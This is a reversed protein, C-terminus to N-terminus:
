FELRLGVKTGGGVGPAVVIRNPDFPINPPGNKGRSLDVIFLSAAVVLAVQGALLRRRARADYFLSRQYFNEAINNLYQGQPGLTCDANDARCIDLLQDWADASQDHERVALGTFAIATAATLWKGYRAVPRIWSQRPEPSAEQAALPPGAVLAVLVLGAGTYNM